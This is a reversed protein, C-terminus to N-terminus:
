AARTLRALYDGDAGQAEVECRWGARQAHAALTGAEVHLWGYLPGILGKYEFRMRIEGIFRGAARNAAQYALHVPETTARVDLSDALIQGGPAVLQQAQQLFRDLGALTQVLGIGHMLLLLTDFTGDRLEFVDTQRVQRVGRAALIAIAAPCVDIALVEAGRTQLVLSHCGAGAGVDLIRGRCLALARREIHSFDAPGRFFPAVALDSVHGDDRRVRCAADAAGDIYDRLAQGFPAMARADM